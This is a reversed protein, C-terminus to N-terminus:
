LDCLSLTRFFHIFITRKRSTVYRVLKTKIAAMTNQTLNFLWKPSLATKGNPNLRYIVM